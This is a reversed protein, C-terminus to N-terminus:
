EHVLHARRRSHVLSRAAWGPQRQRLKLLVPAQKSKREVAPCFNVVRPCKRIETMDPRVSNGTGAWTRVRAAYICATLHAHVQQVSASASLSRIASSGPASLRESRGPRVSADGARTCMRWLVFNIWGSVEERWRAWSVKWGGTHEEGPTDAHM